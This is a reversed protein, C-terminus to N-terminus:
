CKHTFQSSGGERNLSPRLVCLIQEQPGLLPLARPVISCLCRSLSAYPWINSEYLIHQDIRCMGWTDVANGTVHAVCQLSVARPLTLYPPCAPLGCAPLAHHAHHANECARSSRKIRTKDDMAKQRETKRRRATKEQAAVGDTLKASVLCSTPRVSVPRPGASDSDRGAAVVRAVRWECQSATM